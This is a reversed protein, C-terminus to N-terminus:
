ENTVEILKSNLQVAVKTGDATYVGIAKKGDLSPTFYVTQGQNLSLVYAGEKTLKGVKYGLHKGYREMFTTM